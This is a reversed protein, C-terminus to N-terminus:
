AAARVRRDLEQHAHAAERAIQSQDHNRLSGDTVVPDGEVFVDRANAGQHTAFLAFLADDNGAAGSSDLDKLDFIACDGASGITLRGLGEWGVTLAAGETVMHLAREPSLRGKSTLQPQGQLYWALQAEGLMSGRDNSAGGDVAVAVRDSQSSWVRLSPLQYGLRLSASPCHVIGVEHRALTAVDADTLRSGHAFWNGKRLLGLRRAPDLATWPATPNIPHYHTHIPVRANGAIDNLARHFEGGDDLVPTTPGCGFRLRANPPKELFQAIRSLGRNPPEVLRSVDVGNKALREALDFELRPATGRVYLLRIGLEASAELVPTAFDEDEPHLYDFTAVSTCGSLLLQAISVRAAAAVEASAMVAWREYHATLWEPLGPGTRIGRSVGQYLHHHACVLGPLVICGSADVVLDAAPPEGDGVAAVTGDEILVWGNRIPPELARVILATAHAIVTSETM